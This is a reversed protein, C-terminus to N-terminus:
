SAGGGDLEMVAQGHARLVEAARTGPGTQALLRLYRYVWRGDAAVRELVYGHVENRIAALLCGSTVPVALETGDLPGGYLVADMTGDASM